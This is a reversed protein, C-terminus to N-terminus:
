SPLRKKRRSTTELARTVRANEERGRGGKKERPELGKTFELTEKKKERDKM